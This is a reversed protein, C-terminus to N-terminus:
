VALIIGTAFMLLAVGGLVIALLDKDSMGTRQSPPLLPPETGEGADLRGHGRRPRSRGPADGNDRPLCFGSRQYDLGNIHRSAM